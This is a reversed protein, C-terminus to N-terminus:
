EKSTDNLIINNIYNTFFANIFQGFCDTDINFRDKFPGLYKLGCTKFIKYAKYKLDYYTNYELDMNKVFTKIDNHLLNVNFYNNNMIELNLGESVYKIGKVFHVSGILCPEMIIKNLRELLLNDNCYIFVSTKLYVLIPISETSIQYFIKKRAFIGVKKLFELTDEFIKSDYHFTIFNVSKLNSNM